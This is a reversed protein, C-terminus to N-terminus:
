IAGEPPSTMEAAVAGPLYLLIPERFSVDSMYQRTRVSALLM